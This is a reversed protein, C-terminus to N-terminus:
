VDTGMQRKTTSPKVILKRFPFLCSISYFRGKNYLLFSWMMFIKKSINFLFVKKMFVIDKGTNLYVHTCIHIMFTCMYTIHIHLKM